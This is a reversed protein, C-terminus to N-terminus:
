RASSARDVSAIVRPWRDAPTQLGWATRVRLAQRVLAAPPAPALSRVIAITASIRRREFTPSLRRLLADIRSSRGGFIWLGRAEATNAHLFAEVHARGKQVLGREYRPDIAPLEEVRDAPSAELAIYEDLLEPPRDARPSGTSSFLVDTNRVASALAPLHLRELTRLRDVADHGELAVLALVLTAAAAFTARPLLSALAFCGALVLLLFAPLSPILYRGFFRTQAPVLWFFGVPVVLWAALAVAVPRRRRALWVLGTLALAAFVLLGGTGGPTLAYLSEVPVSRGATTSLRSAEGVHYRSRLVGVAYAYPVAVAVGAVLAPRLERVGPRWSPRLALGTLLALPAYLPAIPHVYVLLGAAAGAAAWARADRREAARIGLWTAGLVTLLFLAYMRAFTALEDALPALALLFPLLLAAREDLLSRAVAAAVPLALLFFLLSPVRLGAAGGPWSLTVHEVFFQAPAGGRDIFVDKVISGFSLRSFHLMIAEDLHLPEWTVAPATAAAALAVAAATSLVRAARRDLRLHMVIRSRITERIDIHVFQTPFWDQL